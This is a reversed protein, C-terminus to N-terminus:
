PYQCAHGGQGMAIDQEGDLDDNEVEHQAKGDVLQDAGNNEAFGNGDRRDDNEEGKERSAGQEAKEAEEKSNRNRRDELNDKVLPTCSLANQRAPKGHFFEEFGKSM